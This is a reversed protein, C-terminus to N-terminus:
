RGAYFTQKLQTTYLKIIITYMGIYPKNIYKYIYM